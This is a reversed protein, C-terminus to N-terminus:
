LHLNLDVKSLHSAYVQLIRTFTPLHRLLSHWNPTAIRKTHIYRSSDGLGSYFNSTM